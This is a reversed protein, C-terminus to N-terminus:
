SRSHLIPFFYYWDQFKMQFVKYKISNIPWALLEPSGTEAKCINFRRSDLPYNEISQCDNYKSGVIMRERNANECIFRISVMTGDHLCCCNNPTSCTLTFNSFKLSKRPNSFGAPVDLKHSVPSLVFTGPAIHSKRRSKIRSEQISAVTKENLRNMIQALVHNGQRILKRIMGLFNEYKYASFSELTGHRLAEEALHLLNHVNYVIHFDGHLTRMTAVYDFLLQRILGNSNSYEEPDNLLRAALNLMNFHHMAEPSIYKSFIVPGTYLLIERLETAKFKDYQSFPRPKRVFEMPVWPRFSEYDRDLLSSLEDNNLSDLASIFIKVHRLTCGMDLHHMPDIVVQFELDELFDELPSRVDLYQRPVNQRFNQHTRLPSDTELFVCRHLVKRGVQICRGCRSSHSPFKLLFNKAPTDAIVYRLRVGYQREGIVLGTRKLRQYEESFTRMFEDVNEPQSPGHHMGIVFPEDLFPVNVISGLIPWVKGLSSKSINMGDVHIDFEIVDPIERADVCALLQRLAKELGFHAYSGSSGMPHVNSNTNRPTNLLTRADKPLEDHGADRLGALLNTVAVQTINHTTSWQVLFNSFDFEDDESFHSHDSDHQVDSEDDSSGNGIEMMPNVLNVQHYLDPAVDNLNRGIELNPHFQIMRTEDNNLPNNEIINENVQPNRDVGRSRAVNLAVDRLDANFTQQLRNRQQRPTCESFSKNERVM